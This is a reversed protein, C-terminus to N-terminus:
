GLWAFRRWVVIAQAVITVQSTLMVKEAALLGGPNLIRFRQARKGM